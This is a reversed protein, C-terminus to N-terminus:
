SRHHARTAAVEELLAELRKREGENRGGYLGREQLLEDLLELDHRFTEAGEWDKAAVYHELSTLYDDAMLTLDLNSLRNLQARRRDREPTTM